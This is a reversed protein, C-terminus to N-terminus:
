KLLLMKNMQMKGGFELRSFYVGSALNSANFQVQHNVGATAEGNFLTAVEQGLVNFVKLVARGTSPVTFQIMTSPNFPNPYNQALSFVAPIESKAEKVGTTLELIPRRWVSSSDTGAFLNTGSIVLSQIGVTALGSNSQTWSTGNNKSVFIGDDTGAFLDSGSSVLANVNVTHYSYGGTIESPLGSAATKWTTGNDTSLYVGGANTAGAFINTGIM